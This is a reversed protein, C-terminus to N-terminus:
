RLSEARSAIGRTMGQFGQQLEKAMFLTVMPSMWGSLVFNSEYRTRGDAMVTLVHERSSKMAGLPAAIGYELYELPRNARVTETQARPKGPKLQVQMHIPSGVEFTSECDLIFPNWEGYRQTDVIVQWVTEVPADIEEALRIEFMPNFIGTAVLLIFLLVPAFLVVLAKRLGKTRWKQM